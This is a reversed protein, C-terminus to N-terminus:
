LVGKLKARCVPCRFIGEEIEVFRLGTDVLNNRRRNYTILIGDSTVDEVLGCEPCTLLERDHTFIGHSAALQHIRELQEALPRIAEILTKQKTVETKM